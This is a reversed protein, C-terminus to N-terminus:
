PQLSWDNHELLAAKPCLTGPPIPKVARLAQQKHMHIRQAQDSGAKWFVPRTCQLSQQLLPGCAATSPRITHRRSQLRQKWRRPLWHSGRRLRLCLDPAKAKQLTKQQMMNIIHAPAHATTDHACATVLTLFDTGFTCACGCCRPALQLAPAVLPGALVTGQDTPM